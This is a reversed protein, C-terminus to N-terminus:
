IGLKKLIDETIKRALRGSADPEGTIRTAFFVKRDGHTVCGVFWGLRAIDAKADGATGTKGYLIRGTTDQSIKMLERTIQQAREGIPLEDSWLRRVFEVQEDASIQLSSEIWFNTIGGTIDANGYDLRKVYDNMRKPGIRSAIEQYYWLVSNSFASYMTQDKNWPAIPHVVGDWKLSFEPGPVVGTQLAILSNAIKFTSCPTFREACAQANYRVYRDSGADYMVFCGAHSGFLESLDLNTSTSALTTTASAMLLFAASCLLRFKLLPLKLKLVVHSAQKVLSLYGFSKCPQPTMPRSPTEALENSHAIRDKSVKAKQAEFDGTLRM